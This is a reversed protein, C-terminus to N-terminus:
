LFTVYLIIFHEYNRSHFQENYSLYKHVLFQRVLLTKVVCFKVLFIFIIMVSLRGTM